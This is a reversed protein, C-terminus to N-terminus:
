EGVRTHCPGVHGAVAQLVDNVDVVPDTWYQGLRPYPLQPRPDGHGAGRRQREVVVRGADQDAVDVAVAGGIQDIDAAVLDSDPDVAAAVAPGIGDGDVAGGQSDSESRSRRISRNPLPTGPRSNLAVSVAVGLPRGPLQYRSNVPPTM